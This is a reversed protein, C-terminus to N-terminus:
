KQLLSQTPASFLETMMGDGMDTSKQENWNNYSVSSGSYPKDNLPRYVGNIECHYFLTKWVFGKEKALKATEFSILQDQM